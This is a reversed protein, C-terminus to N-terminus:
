REQFLVSDRPVILPKVRFNAFGASLMMSPRLSKITAVSWIAGNFLRSTQAGKRLFSHVGTINVANLVQVVVVSLNGSVRRGAAGADVTGHPGILYRV